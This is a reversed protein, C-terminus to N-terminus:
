DLKPVHPETDEDNFDDFDCEDVDCALLELEDLLEVELTEVVEDAELVVLVM